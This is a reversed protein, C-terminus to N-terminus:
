ANDKEEDTKEMEMQKNCKKCVIELGAKGKAELKCDPCTYKFITKARTKTPLAIKLEPTRFYTFAADNPKVVEDIFQKFEASPNTIGYGYKNSKECVLGVKEALTKFKKNHYYQDTYDKIDNLLNSYHVLEHQLTEAIYLVPSQLHHACINIEHKTDKDDKIRQWVKKISCWGLFAKKTSQITIVPAPLKKEYYKENLHDFIRYLEELVVGLYNENNM